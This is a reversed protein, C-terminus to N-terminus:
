SKGLLGKGTKTVYNFDNERKKFFKLLINALTCKKAGQSIIRKVFPNISNSFSNQNNCPRAIRLCEPGASINFINLPINSSKNPMRVISCLFSERKNFLGIQFKNKIKIDLDLFTTEASNGNERRWELEESYIDRFNNEFIGADNVANLDYIFCLVNCFKGKKLDKKQLDKIWRSEYYYLFLNPFFPAPDSGLRIGIIQTFIKKSM